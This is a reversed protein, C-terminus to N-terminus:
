WMELVEKAAAEAKDGLDTDEAIAAAKKYVQLAKNYQHNRTYARGLAMYIYAAEPQKEVARELKRIAKAYDGTAIYVQGLGHLARPFERKLELAKRYYHIAEQYRGKRYYVYGLNSLPYHPTMYLLDNSVEKFCAIAKDWQELGVYASGLNNRAASYEPRIELAKKLHAVAKQPKSKAMYVLGLDNHTYPDDPSLEEAKLLERLARTYDNEAMYAEALNRAAEAKEHKPNPDSGPACGSLLGLLTFGAIIGVLFKCKM